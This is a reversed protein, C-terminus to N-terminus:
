EQSRCTYGSVINVFRNSPHKQRLLCERGARRLNGAAVASANEAEPAAAGTANHVPLSARQYSSLASSTSVDVLLKGARSARGDGCIAATRRSRKDAFVITFSFLYAPFCM